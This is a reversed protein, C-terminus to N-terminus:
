DPSLAFRIAEPLTMARGQATVSGIVEASLGRTVTEVLQKRETRETPLLATHIMERLAGAAALLSLAREPQDCAWALAAFADLSYALSYGYHGAHLIKIGETHLSRALELDGRRLAADGLEQLSAAYGWDFSAAEATKLNEEFVEVARAADGRYTIVRGLWYRRIIAHWDNAWEQSLRLSESCLHEAEELRGECMAVVGLGNLAWALSEHDNIEGAMTLGDSCYQHAEAISGQEIALDGLHVLAIAISRKDGLERSLQLSEEFVQRATVRDDQRVQAFEGLEALTRATRWTDELERYLALSQEFYSRGISPDDEIWSYVGRSFLIEAIARENELEHSLRLSQDWIRKSEDRDELGNANLSLAQAYAVTRRPQHPLDQLRKFWDRQEARYGRVFWFYNLALALNLGAEALEASEGTIAFELAARFNDQERELRSMWKIQSEGRLGLDAEQALRLFYQLHCAATAAEDGAEQLKERLYARVTELMWYRTEGNPLRDVVLLSKDVLRAVLDLMELEPPDGLVPAMSDLGFGGSFVSL